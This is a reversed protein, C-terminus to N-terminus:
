WRYQFGVGITLLINDTTESPINSYDSFRVSPALEVNVLWNETVYTDVGVGIRAMFDWRSQDLDLNDFPGRANFVGYQAGPGITLYPQVRRLPLILKLNAVFSHTSRTAATAAGRIEVDSSYVGEYLTEIALWPTARYGCRAIFAGGLNLEIARGLEDQIADELFPIGTGASLGVYWGRRAYDPASEIARSTSAMFLGAILILGLRNLM